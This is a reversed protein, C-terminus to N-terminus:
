TSPLGADIIAAAMSAHGNSEDLMRATWGEDGRLNLDARAGMIVNAMSGHGGHAAHKLATLGQQGALQPRCPMSVFPFGTIENM